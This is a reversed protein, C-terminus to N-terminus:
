KLKDEIFEGKIISNNIIMPFIYVFIWSSIMMSLPCIIYKEDLNFVFLLALIPLLLISIFLCIILLNKKERKVKKIFEDYLIGNNEEINNTPSMKLELEVIKMVNVKEPYFYVFYWSMPIMATLFSISKAKTGFILLLILVLVLMISILHSISRLKKNEKKFKQIVKSVVIDNNITLQKFELETIKMINEKRQMFCGFCWSIPIASALSIILSKDLDFVYILIPIVVLVMFYVSYSFILIMKNEKKLKQIQEDITMDDIKKKM